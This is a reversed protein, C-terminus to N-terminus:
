QQKKMLGADIDVPCGKRCATKHLYALKHGQGNGQGSGKMIRRSGSVLALCHVFM